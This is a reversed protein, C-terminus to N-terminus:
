KWFVHEEREGTSAGDVREINAFFVERLETVDIKERLDRCRKSPVFNELLHVHESINVVSKTQDNPIWVILSVQVLSM